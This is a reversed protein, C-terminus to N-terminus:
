TTRCSDERQGDKWRPYAIDDLEATAWKLWSSALVLAPRDHYRAKANKRARDLATQAETIHRAITDLAETDM